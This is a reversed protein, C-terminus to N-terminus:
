WGIGVLQVAVLIGLCRSPQPELKSFVPLIPFFYKPPSTSLRLHQHETVRTVVPTPTDGTARIARYIKTESVGRNFYRNTRTTKPYNDVIYNVPLVPRRELRESIM